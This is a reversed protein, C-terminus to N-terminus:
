QKRNMLQACFLFRQLGYYAQMGSLYLLVLFLILGFIQSLEAVIPGLLLKQAPHLFEGPVNGWPEVGPKFTDVGQMILYFVAGAFATLYRTRDRINELDVSFSKVIWVWEDNELSLERDFRDMIRARWDADRLGQSLLLGAGGKKFHGPLDKGVQSAFFYISYLIPFALFLLEVWGRFFSSVWGLRILILGFVAVVAPAVFCWLFVSLMRRNVLSRESQMEQRVIELFVTYASKLEARSKM